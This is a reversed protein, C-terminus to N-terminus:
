IWPSDGKIPSAGQSVIEDSIRVSFGVAHSFIGGSFNGAGYPNVLGVVFDGAEFGTKVISKANAASKKRGDLLARRKDKFM